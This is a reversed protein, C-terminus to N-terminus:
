KLLRLSGLFLSADAAAARDRPALSVVQFLKQDTICLRASLSLARTDVNPYANFVICPHGELFALRGEGPEHNVNAGFNALLAIGADNLLDARAKVDTSTPLAAFGAGYLFSDVRVSLMTMQLSQRGIRVARSDSTPKAPLLIAFGGETSAVERWDLAPYCGTILALVAVCGARRVRARGIM